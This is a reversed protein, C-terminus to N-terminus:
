TMELVCRPTLPLFPQSLISLVIIYFVVYQTETYQHSLFLSVPDM